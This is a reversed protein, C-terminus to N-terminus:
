ADCEALFKLLDGTFQDPDQLMAFHSVDHEVLLKASPISLALELAHRRDIIEDHDAAIILVPIAISSLQSKTFNPESPWLKRMAAVLDEYRNPM